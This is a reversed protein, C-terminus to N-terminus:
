RGLAPPRAKLCIAAPRHPREAVSRHRPRPHHRDRSSAGDPDRFHYGADLDKIESLRMKSAPGAGDTTREVGEDHLVIVEEDATLHVDMELRDAGAALAAAFAPLTNEPATGSAGRHAFLRPRPGDKYHM